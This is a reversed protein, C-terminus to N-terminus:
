SCDEQVLEVPEKEERTLVREISAYELFMREDNLPNVMYPREAIAKLPDHTRTHLNVSCHNHESRKRGPVTEPTFTMSVDYLM